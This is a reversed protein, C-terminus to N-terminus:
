PFYTPKQNEGYDIISLDSVASLLYECLEKVEIVRKSPWFFCDELKLQKLRRQSVLLRMTKENKIDSNTLWITHLSPSTSSGMDEGGDPENAGQLINVMSEDLYCGQLSLTHLHPLSHVLRGFDSSKIEDAYLELATITSRRSFDIIHNVWDRSSGNNLGPFISLSLSNSKPSLLPFIREIDVLQLSLIELHQLPAPIPDGGAPDEPYLDTLKLQRLKPCAHLANALRTTTISAMNSFLEVNVLKSMVHFYDSCLAGVNLRLMQLEQCQSLWDQLTSLEDYPDDVDVDLKRLTASVGGVFWTKLLINLQATSLLHLHLASIYKSGFSLRPVVQNLATKSISTDRFSKKMVIIDLPSTGARSLWIPVSDLSRQIYQNSMWISTYTWFSSTHLAVNRWYGCVGSLVVVRNLAIKKGSIEASLPGALHTRFVNDGLIARTSKKEYVVLSFSLVLLEPHLSNIRPLNGMM